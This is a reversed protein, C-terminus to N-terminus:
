RIEGKETRPLSAGARDLLARSFCYSEGLTMPRSLRMALMAQSHARSGHANMGDVAEMVKEQAEPEMHRFMAAVIMLAPTMATEMFTEAMREAERQHHHKYGFRDGIERRLRLSERRQEAFRNNVPRRTAAGPLRVVNSPASAGESQIPRSAM